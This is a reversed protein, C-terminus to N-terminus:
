LECEEALVNIILGTVRCVVTIKDGKRLSVIQSKYEDDFMAQFFYLEFQQGTGLTVYMTGLLDKGISNIIGTVQVKRDKYKEDAAVENSKYENLIQSIGVRNVNTRKNWWNEAIVEIPMPRRNPDSLQREPQESAAVWKGTNPDFQMLGNGAKETSPSIQSVPTSGGTPWDNSVGKELIAFVEDKTLNQTKATELIAFSFAADKSKKDRANKVARYIEQFIIRQKQEEDSLKTNDIVTPAQTSVATVAPVKQPPSSCMSYIGSCILVLIVMGLCGTKSDTETAM